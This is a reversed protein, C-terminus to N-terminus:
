ISFWYNLKIMFVNGPYYNFLARTNQSVSQIFDNERGSREQGWVLYLISNPRYEWRAVLNFRFERFSFDPNDFSYKDGNAESVSYSNEDANYIIHNDLPRFRNDYIKDMTNMARKFNSYKGSSIFPNGYFQLSLDPTISYDMRLTLGLINQKLGSLVYAKKGDGFEPASAYELDLRKYTYDLVASLGLNPIPRYNTEFWAFHAYRKESLMTGHYGKFWLKKSQDTGFSMDTGWRPNLRVAPGGRLMNTSVNVNEYFGCAYLYWKNVFEMTSEIGFIGFTHVNGFNWLNRYWPIINYSRFIGTPSNQVYGIWGRQMIYDAQELYGIDNPAFGPSAWWLYHESIWKANDGRKGIIFTGSTGSLSTKSSDVQLYSADERQYNHVPSRQINTIAEKTGEIMSYKVAGKIYFMRNRIYQEFDVSGTYANRTLGQLHDENLNRNTSTFMGGVVTNGKRFDQQLRAVSYSSFPQVTKSFERNDETIKASNKATLSNLVGVSLGNKSKGSVKVASIINTEKPMDIYTNDGENDPYYLPRAGIRRSYFLAEGLQSFINKGELFFPRKEEYYTEFATLNITSPDAEVQGFDPNITFDLTFNSALGVKGDVGAGYGLDTGKAYPNGEEKESLQYKLSAYPSIEIRRSHPLGQIGTLRGLSAVFGKNSRPILYLHTMEGKRDISRIVNVGWEQEGATGSYRLQSLPIRFEAAWGSNDVSVKGDWVANWTYDDNESNFVLFDAKTGGATLAFAFGTRRDNYSDLIVCVADGKIQDRPALWRNIKEPDSDLAQIAVYVNHDDYLIKTLTQETAALGEDPQQQTFSGAWNGTNKWCDDDLLGNIVPPNNTRTATYSRMSTSDATQAQMFNSLLCLALVLFFKSYEV